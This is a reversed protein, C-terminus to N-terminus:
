GRPLRALMRKAEEVDRGYRAPPATAAFQELAKRAMDPRGHQAAKVGLNFLADFLKPDLEVARQWAELAGGHQGLQYRAVGLNNWAQPLAPNAAVAQASRSEAEQWQGERLAVLGLTEMARAEAPEEALVALLISRAQAQSGAESLLKATVLRTDREPSSDLDKLVVLGEQPRGVEALSLALQRLLSSSALKKGRANQMVEIAERLAGTELLAQALFSYGVAMTPREAVVQRALALAENARGRSYLDVVRHIKQDLAVLKKPDDAATFRTALPGSSSLYGLAGLRAALEASVEQRGKPPWASAPPVVALLEGLRTKRPVALNQAEAADRPLDYLEPRPLDIVKEGGRILGRLPAWGRNLATSLSEFYTDAASGTPAAGLLSRGPLPKGEFTARPRKAAELATPFMDVHRAWRPDRGREVGVGWLVLPVKLTSEYAFLGHTAEGHDGLAEGHDATMMVLAPAEKGDLFPTLLPALFADIAEVEGLYPSEAHRSAFPEPPAYPAHADFLHVWLFRKKGKQSQWWALAPGVVEDGRREDLAFERSHAGRPFRDDYVAFGRDLGFQSDLPFAGVFAATQYGAAALETALTPVTKPLVFGSNERVGHQFPYLGTLINAHSPLTVVNHAHANGFVRGSAALRDLTPTKVRTNGAFGAADWRFTDLTILVIDAPGPSAADVFFVGIAFVLLLSATM